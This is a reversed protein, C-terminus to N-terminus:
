RDRVFGKRGLWDTCVDIAQACHKPQGAYYHTAGSIERLEKDAHGIADFLRHTHSPTCANDATNGIVLVPCSVNRANNVGNARSEDFSWQSLWSRLTCFRALGVPGHQRHASRRPLM